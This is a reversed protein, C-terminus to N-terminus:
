DDSQQIELVCKALNMVIQNIFNNPIVMNWIMDIMKDFAEVRNEYMM